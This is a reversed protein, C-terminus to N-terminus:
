MCESVKKKVWQVLKIQDRKQTWDVATIEYTTIKSGLRKIVSTISQRVNWFQERKSGGELKSSDVVQLFFTCDSMPIRVYGHSENHFFTSFASAFFKGFIKIPEFGSEEIEIIGRVSKEKLILIDVQCYRKADPDPKPDDVYLRLEQKVGCDKGRVVKCGEPPDAKLAEGIKKHLPHAM